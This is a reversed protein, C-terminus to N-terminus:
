RSPLKKELDNLRKELDKLKDQLKELGELRGIRPMEFHFDRFDRGWDRSQERIRHRLDGLEIERGKREEITATLTRASKNRQVEIKVTEGAKKGRIARSLDRSSGVRDGDVRTVVDGVQLGAKAAPTGTEVDAVLIGADRPAGFHERLAPTLELLHIGLYGGRHSGVHLVMPDDDDDLTLLREGNIVIEKEDRPEDGARVSSAPSIALLVLLPAAKLMATTM